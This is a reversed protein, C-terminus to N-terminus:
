IAVKGRASILTFGAVLGSWECTGSRHCSVCSSTTVLPHARSVYHSWAMEQSKCNVTDNRIALNLARREHRLRKSLSM